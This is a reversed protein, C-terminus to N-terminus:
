YVLRANKMIAAEIEADVSRRLDGERAKVRYALMWALREARYDAWDTGQIGVPVAVGCGLGDAAETAAEVGPNHGLKAQTGHDNDAAVCVMGRRAVPVRSLNGSNFGVLVRTLRVAAFIALGTALGECLVTISAGKREVAYSGAKVSAGPWFRKEGDPSIRQVSMVNGDLMVPVVLWGDGDVKLGFCGDMTLGHSELYPHGERLPLCDIYFKRAAQTAVVVARREDALRRARAVPDQKVPEITREATWTLPSAHAAFDQCFGMTGSELLKYSGNKKQPHSETACRRWRGDAVVDGPILGCVRLFDPFATM